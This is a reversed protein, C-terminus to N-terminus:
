DTCWVDLKDARVSMSRALGLDEDDSMLVFEEDEDMYKLKLPKPTGFKRQIKAVLEDFTVDFDCAIVMNEKYHAKVRLKNGSPGIESYSSGAYSSAADNQMARSRMSGGYASGNGPSGGGRMRSGMSPAVSPQRQRESLRSMAPSGPGARSRGSDVSGSRSLGRGLPSDGNAAKRMGVVDVSGLRGRSSPAPVAVNTPASATTSMKRQHAGKFGTFMDTKEVAAILKSKGLYDVPKANKVKDKDPRFLLGPPLSFVSLGEIGQQIAEDIIDHDPTQKEAQAADLDAMGADENNMFLYCLGRNYLAECSFLKYDLGLQKYDILTNGRLYELACSFDEVATEFDGMLFTSTGKQFYAIALYKDAGVADMYAGAASEHEQISSLIVGINFHIKASEAIEEFLALAKELDGEDFAQCGENWTLLEERLSM